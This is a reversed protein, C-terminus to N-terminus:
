TISFNHKFINEYFRGTTAFGSIKNVGWLKRILSLIM